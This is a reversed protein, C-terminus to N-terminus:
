LFRVRGDRIDRVNILINEGEVKSPLYGPWCGGPNRNETGIGDIPYRNGCNNCVMVSGEQRYGKHAYGCVDCADFATKPNGDSDLVAFYKIIVGGDNFQYFKATSSLESLPIKLQGEDVTNGTASCGMIFLLSIALMFLIIKKMKNDGVVVAEQYGVHQVVM